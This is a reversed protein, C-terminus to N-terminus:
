EERVVTAGHKLYLKMTRSDMIPNFWYTGVLVILMGQPNLGDLQYENRGMYKVRGPVPYKHRVGKWLDRSQRQNCGVVLILDCRKDKTDRIM